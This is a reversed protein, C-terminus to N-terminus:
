ADSTKVGVAREVDRYAPLDVNEQELEQRLPAKEDETAAHQRAAEERAAVRAARRCKRSQRGCIRGEVKRIRRRQVLLRTIKFLLAM